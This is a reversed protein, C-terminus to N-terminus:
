GINQSFEATDQLTLQTGQITLDDKSVTLRQELEEPRKTHIPQHRYEQLYINYKIGM